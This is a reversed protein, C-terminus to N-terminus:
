TIRLSITILSQSLLFPGSRTPHYDNYLSVTRTQFATTPLSAADSLTVHNVVSGGRYWTRWPLGAPTLSCTGFPSSGGAGLVQSCVGLASLRWQCPDTGRVLSASAVAIAWSRGQPSLRESFLVRTQLYPSQSFLFHLSFWTEHRWLLFLLFPSKNRVRTVSDNPPGLLADAMWDM